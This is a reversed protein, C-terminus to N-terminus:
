QVSKKNQRKVHVHVFLRDIHENNDSLPVYLARLRLYAKDRSLAEAQAVMPMRNDICKQCSLIIREGVEPSPHESVNKGTMEGYFNVTATGQLVLKVDAVHTDLGYLPQMICIEPLFHKLERPVIDKRKALRSGETKEEFYTLLKGISKDKQRLTEAPFFDVKRFM